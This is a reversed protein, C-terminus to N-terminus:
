LLFTHVNPRPSPFRDIMSRPLRSTFHLGTSTSPKAPSIRRTLFRSIPILHISHFFSLLLLTDYLGCLFHVNFSSLLLYISSAVM